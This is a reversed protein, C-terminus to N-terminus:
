SSVVECDTAQGRLEDELSALSGRWPSSSRWCSAAWWGTWRWGCPAQVGLKTRGLVCWSILTTRQRGLSCVGGCTCGCVGLLVCAAGRLRHKTVFTVSHVKILRLGLLSLFTGTHRMPGRADPAQRGPQPPRTATFEWTHSSLVRNNRQNPRFVDHTNTKNSSNRVQSAEPQERTCKTFRCRRTGHYRVLAAM